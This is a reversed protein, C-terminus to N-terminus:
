QSSLYALATHSSHWISEMVKQSTIRRVSGSATYVHFDLSTAAGMSAIDDRSSSCVSSYSPMSAKVTDGCQVPLSLSDERLLYALAGFVFAKQFSVLQGKNSHRISAVASLWRLRFFICPAAYWSMTNMDTKSIM